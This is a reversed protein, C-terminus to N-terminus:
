CYCDRQGARVQALLRESRDRAVADMSELTRAILDEGVARTEEGAYDLLYEQFTSLANPDCHHRIDGPKALDMFDKGTRGLRYCGTCFSPVYGLKALQAAGALITNVVTINSTTGSVAIRM